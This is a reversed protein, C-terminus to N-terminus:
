GGPPIVAALAAHIAEAGAEETLEAEIRRRAAGGLRARLEPDRALRALAEALLDPRAPTVLLGDEADTIAEPIGTIRSAVVPLGAAMAELVVVPLGEAFSPLCFVDAQAYLAAVADHGLAGHWRVREGLGLARARRELEEQLPGGGVVDAEADVGQDALLRLAELLVVHGKVGVLRGVGLIRLPGDGHRRAPAPPVPVGYRAVHVRDWSEPELWSLAQAKSYDSACLIGSAERGKLAIRNAHVDSFDGVGHLHMSFSQPGSGVARGFRTATLAIDAANTSFHAHVHTVHRRRLLDWLQIAGGWYRAQRLRQGPPADRVASVLSAIWAAPRMAARLHARVLTLPRPPSLWPTAAAEEADRETFVDQPRRVSVTVVEVGRARLGAVERQVFVQSVRPYHSLLYAVRM